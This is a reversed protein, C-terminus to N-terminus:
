SHHLRQMHTVFSQFLQTNTQFHLSHNFMTMLLGNIFLHSIRLFMHAFRESEGMEQIGVDYCTSQKLRTTVIRYDMASWGGYSTIYYIEQKLIEEDLTIHCIKGYRYECIIDYKENRIAGM